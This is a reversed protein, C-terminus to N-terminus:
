KKWHARSKNYYPQKNEEKAKDAVVENLQTKQLLNFEM